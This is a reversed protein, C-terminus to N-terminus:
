GGTPKWRGEASSFDKKEVWEGFQGKLSQPESGSLTTSATTGAPRQEEGRGEAQNTQEM